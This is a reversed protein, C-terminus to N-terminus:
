MVGEVPAGAMPGQALMMLTQLLVDKEGALQAEGSQWKGMVAQLLMMLMEDPNPEMMPMGPGGGMPMGGPGGMPPPMPAGMGMGMAM